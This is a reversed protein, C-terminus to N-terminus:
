HFLNSTWLMAPGLRISTFLPQLGPPFFYKLVVSKQLGASLPSIVLYLIWTLDPIM